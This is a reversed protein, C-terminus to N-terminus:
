PLGHDQSMHGCVCVVSVSSSRFEQCDCKTCPFDGMTEFLDDIESLAPGNKEIVNPDYKICSTEESSSRICTSGRALNPKGGCERV